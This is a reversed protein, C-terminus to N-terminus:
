TPHEHANDPLNPPPPLLPPSAHPLTIPTASSFAFFIDTLPPNGRKLTIVRLGDESIGRRPPSTGQPRLQLTGFFRRGCNAFSSISSPWSAISVTAIRQLKWCQVSDRAWRPTTRPTGRWSQLPRIWVM